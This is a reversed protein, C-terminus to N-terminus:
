SLTQNKLSQENPMVLGHKQIHMQAQQAIGICHLVTYSTLACKMQDAKTDTYRKLNVQDTKSRATM